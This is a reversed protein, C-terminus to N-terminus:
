PDVNTETKAGIRHIRDINKADIDIDMESKITQIVLNDTVEEHRRKISYILFCNGRFHQEERDIQQEIEDNKNGLFSVCKQLCKTQEDKKREEEYEDFKKRLKIM